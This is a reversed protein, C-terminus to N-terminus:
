SGEAYLSKVCLDKSVCIHLIHHEIRACVRWLQHTYLVSFWRDCEAGQTDAQRLM